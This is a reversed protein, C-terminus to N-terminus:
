REIKCNPLANRLKAVGEGTVKTGHLSLRELRTLKTVYILDSDGINQESLNLSRLEPLGSLCLLDSGMICTMHSGDLAGCHFFAGVVPHFFDNGLTTLLTQYESVPREFEPLGFGNCNYDYCTMGGLKSVQNASEQQERAKKMEAALWSCPLAVAVVLVLLTHISLQFRLHFLFAALLWLGLFVIAVGVAAVAILVTWGKHENFAFCMWHESAFLLGTTVLAGYVLWAPTPYLWRPVPESAAPPPETEIMDIRKVGGVTAM